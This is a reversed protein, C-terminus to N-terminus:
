EHDNETVTSTFKRVLRKTTLLERKIAILEPTVEAAPISFHASVNSRVYSDDLSAVACRIREAIRLANQRYHQKKYAALSEKNSRARDALRAANKARYQRGYEKIDEVHTRRYESDFGKRRENLSTRNRDRWARYQAAIRQAHKQRYRRKTNAIEIAKRARYERACQKCGTSRGSVAKRDRSFGELGKWEGCKTCRKAQGELVALVTAALTM